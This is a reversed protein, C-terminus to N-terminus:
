ADDPDVVRLTPWRERWRKHAVRASFAGPDVAQPNRRLTLSMLDALGLPALVSIRGAAALTVGVATATEPWASMAAEVSGYPAVVRGRRSQWEHVLAQNTVEWEYAPMMERLKAAYAEAPAANQDFYVVDIDGFPGASPRGSLADWVTDRVAGAAVYWSPPAVDRIARLVECLWPTAAVIRAVDAIDGTM